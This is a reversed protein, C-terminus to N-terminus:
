RSLTRWSGALDYRYGTAPDIRSAVIHVHAYDEAKHAIFLAKANKMGLAELASKAAHEMQERTPRESPDWSFSLHMCDQQCAGKQNLATFEM